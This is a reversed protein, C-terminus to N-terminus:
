TLGGILLGLVVLAVLTELLTFGSWRGGSM